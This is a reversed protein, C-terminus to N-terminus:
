GVIADKDIPKTIPRVGVYTKDAVWTLKGNVKDVRVIYFDRIGVGSKDFSVQGAPGKFNLNLIASRLKAPNTDGGTSKLAELIVSLDEYAAEDNQVTPLTNYEAKYQDAFKKAEPTNLDWVYQISTQIGLSPDGLQQMQTDSLGNGYALLNKSKNVVTLQKLFTVETAPFWSVVADAQKLNSIYSSFDTTTLDTWQAQIVHGGGERFGQTFGAQIRWGAIYNPAILTATKLHLVQSAYLGMPYAIQALDGQPCFVWGSQTAEIPTSEIAITPVKHAKLYPTIGTLLSSNFPGMLAAVHDNEVLERAKAQATTLDNADDAVILNIKKGAVEGNAEKLRLNIAKLFIQGFFSFPGTLPLIAGISITGGNAQPSSGGGCAVMLLLACVAGALVRRNLNM